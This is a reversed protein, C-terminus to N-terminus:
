IRQDYEGVTECVCKVPMELELLSMALVVFLLSYGTNRGQTANAVIMGIAASPTKVLRM